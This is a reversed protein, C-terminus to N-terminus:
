SATSQVAYWVDSHALVDSPVRVKWTSWVVHLRSDPGFAVQAFDPPPRDKNVATDLRVWDFSLSETGAGTVIGANFDWLEDQPPVTSDSYWGIGV